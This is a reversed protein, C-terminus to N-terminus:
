RTIASPRQLRPNACGTVRLATPRGHGVLGGNEGLCREPRCGLQAQRVLQKHGHDAYRLRGNRAHSATIVCELAPLLREFERNEEHAEVDSRNTGVDPRSTGRLDATARLWRRSRMSARTLLLIEGRELSTRRLRSFIVLIVM